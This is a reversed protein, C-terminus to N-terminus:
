WHGVLADLGRLRFAESTAKPCGLFRSFSMGQPTAADALFRSILACSSENVQMQILKHAATERGHVPSLLHPCTPVVGGLHSIIKQVGDEREGYRVGGQRRSDM